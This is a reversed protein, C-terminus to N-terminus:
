GVSLVFVNELSLARTIRAKEKLADRASPFFLAPRQSQLFNENTPKQDTRM